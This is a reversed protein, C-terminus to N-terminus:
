RDTAKYQYQNVKYKDADIYYECGNTMTLKYRPIYVGDVMLIEPQYEESVIHQTNIKIRNGIILFM